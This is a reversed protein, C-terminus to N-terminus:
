NERADCLSFFLLPDCTFISFRNGGVRRRPPVSSASKLRAVHRISLSFAVHKEKRAFIVPSRDRIQREPHERSTRTGWHVHERIRARTHLNGARTPSATARSVVTVRESQCRPDVRFLPHFESPSCSTSQLARVYACVHAIRTYWTPACFLRRSSWERVFLSLFFPTSNLYASRFNSYFVRTARAGSRPPPRIYGCTFGLYM